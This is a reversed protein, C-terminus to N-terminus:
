TGAGSAFGFKVYHTQGGQTTSQISNTTSSTIDTGAPQKGAWDVVASQSQSGEETFWYRIEITSLTVTNSGDNILKLQFSPSNSSAATNYTLYQLRLNSAFALAPLSLILSSVLPWALKKLKM